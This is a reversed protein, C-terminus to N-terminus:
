HFTRLHEGGKRRVCYLYVFGRYTDVVMVRTMFCPGYVKTLKSSRKVVGKLGVIAWESTHM